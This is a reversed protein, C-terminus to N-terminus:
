SDKQKNRNEHINEIFARLVKKTTELDENSIGEYSSEWAENVVKM